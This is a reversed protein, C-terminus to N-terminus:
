RFLLLSESRQWHRHLDDKQCFLCLWATLLAAAFLGLIASKM